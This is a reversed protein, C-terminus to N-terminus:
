SGDQSAICSIGFKRNYKKEKLKDRKKGQRTKRERKRMM